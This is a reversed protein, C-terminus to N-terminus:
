SEKKSKWGKSVADFFQKKKADDLSAPSKIGWKKLMSKFYEQYANSGEEVKEEEKEMGSGDGKGKGPGEGRGYPGSGDPVHGGPGTKLESLIEDLKKDSEKVEKYKGDLILDVFQEAIKIKSM